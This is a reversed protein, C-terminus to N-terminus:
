FGCTNVALRMEKALTRVSKTFPRRLYNYLELLQGFTYAADVDGGQWEGVADPYVPKYGQPKYEM